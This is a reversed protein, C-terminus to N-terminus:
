NLSFWAGAVECANQVRKINSRYNEMDESMSKFLDVASPPLDDVLADLLDRVDGEATLAIADVKGRYADDISLRADASLMGDYQADMLKEHEHAFESCASANPDASPTAEPTTTSNCGTLSLGLIVPLVTFALRRM